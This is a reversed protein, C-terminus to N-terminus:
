RAMWFFRQCGAHAALWPPESAQSLRSSSPGDRLVGKVQPNVALDVATSPTDGGVSMVSAETTAQTVVDPLPPAALLVVLPLFPTM